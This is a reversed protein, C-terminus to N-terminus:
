QLRLGMRALAAMGEPSELLKSAAEGAPNRPYFTVGLWDGRLPFTLSRIRGSKAILDLAQVRTMDDTADLLAQRAAGKAKWIEAAAPTYRKM